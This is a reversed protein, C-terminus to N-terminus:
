NSNITGLLAGPRSGFVFLLHKTSMDCIVFHTGTWYASAVRLGSGVGAVEAEVAAPTQSRSVPSDPQRGAQRGLKCM